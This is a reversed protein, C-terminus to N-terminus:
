RTQCLKTRIKDIKTRYSFDYRNDGIRLRFGGVLNPNVKCVCEVERHTKEKIKGVLKEVVADSVPIATELVVLDIKRETRYLDRYVLIILRIKDERNNELLMSLFRTYLTATYSESKPPTAANAWAGANVESATILLRMKKEKSLRPNILATQLEPEAKMNRNLAGLHEYIIDDTFQAKAEEYLARAYRTAISGNIM